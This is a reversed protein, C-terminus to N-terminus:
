EDGGFKTSLEQTTWMQAPKEFVPRFSQTDASSRAKITHHLPQTCYAKKEEEV